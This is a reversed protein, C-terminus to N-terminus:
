PLYGLRKSLASAAQLAAAGLSRRLKSDIVESPRSVTLAAAMTGDHRFIPAAVGAYHKSTKMGAFGYRRVSAILRDVLTESERLARLEAQVLVATDARPLHALFINGTASAVVPLVFGVQMPVLTWRGDVKHIITPGRNGWISLFVTCGTEARLVSITERALGIMDSHRMAAAGLRLAFPGLAYLGTDTDREIFGVDLFSVVYAHAKSPSMGAERAIETLSLRRTANALLELIECGLVVSSVRKQARATM